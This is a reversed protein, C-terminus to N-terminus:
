PAAPAEGRAPGIITRVRGGAAAEAEAAGTELHYVIREAEITKEGKVVRARGTLTLTQLEARYEMRASRADLTEGDDHRMRFTAPRGTAVLRTVEGGRLEVTLVEATLRQSGRVAVVHGRYVARQERDLFEAEDAEVELPHDADSQLARVTQAPPGALLLCTLLGVATRRSM